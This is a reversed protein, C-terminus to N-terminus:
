QVWGGFASFQAKFGSNDVAQINLQNNIGCRSPMSLFFARRKVNSSCDKILTRLNVLITTATACDVRGAVIRGSNLGSTYVSQPNSTSFSVM